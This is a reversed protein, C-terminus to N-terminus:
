GGINIKLGRKVLEAILEGDSYDDLGNKITKTNSTSDTEQTNQKLLKELYKFHKEPIVGDKLWYALTRGSIRLYDRALEARSIGLTKRLDDIYAKALKSDGFNGNKTKSM